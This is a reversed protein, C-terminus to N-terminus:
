VVIVDSAEPGKEGQVVAFEVNSGPSLRKSNKQMSRFHVFIEEGNERTIFGFGKSGSFWKVSGLERGKGPKATAASKGSTRGGNEGETRGPNASALLTCIISCACFAVAAPLNFSFSIGGTNVWGQYLASLPIAVVLCILLRYTLSM